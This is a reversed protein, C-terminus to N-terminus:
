IMRNYVYCVESVGVQNSNCKTHEYSHNRFQRAYLFSLNSLLIGWCDLGQFCSSVNFFLINLLKFKTNHYTAVGCSSSILAMAIYVKFFISHRLVSSNCSQIHPRFFIVINYISDADARKDKQSVNSICNDTSQVYVRCPFFDYFIIRRPKGGFYWLYFPDLWKKFHREVLM